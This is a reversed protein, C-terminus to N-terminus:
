LTSDEIDFCMYSRRCNHLARHVYGYVDQSTGRTTCHYKFSNYRCFKYVVYFYGIVEEEELNDERKCLKYSQIGSRVTFGIFVAYIAFSLKTFDAQNVKEVTGNLSLMVSGACILMFLLWWRLFLSWKKTFGPKSSPM